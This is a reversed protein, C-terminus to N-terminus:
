HRDNQLMLKNLSIVDPPIPFTYNIDNPALTDLITTTGNLLIRRLTLNAGEKNLRRLDTWRLGRFALEKRRELLVTDLADASSAVTYGGFTGAKWRKKLLSNIDAIAAGANGARAAGEARILFLEDVALGGFPYLTGTYGGKLYYTVGNNRTRYFVQLRLDSIDYSRLLSTDIWTTPYGASIVSFYPTSSPAGLFSAQYLTEPNYLSVPFALSLNLTDYDMLTSDVQLASDALARALPYNRMSLYVRALLAQACIRVPRNLTKGVLGGPLYGEAQHLDSLIQDYTARVSSRASLTDIASSTPIPIGLDNNATGEDFVPAFLQALNYFANARLFLAAGELANWTAMSDPSKKMAKLGELVVNAYFVQQYPINWDLQGAQGGYIDAGWVYASHERTVMAQWATYSVYYNDASAEGLVPVLSFVKVNDLLAQFDTLTTPVLLNTSPKKDLFEQKNCAPGALGLLSLLLLWYISAKRAARM